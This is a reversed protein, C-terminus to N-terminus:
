KNKLQNIATQLQLDDEEKLTEYYKEDQEVVINPTIGKEDIWNGNPTLWKQITYKVTAGSELQYAKQVTGKGYSNVGVVDANYSELLAGALIESASASYGNILVSIPYKRNSNKFSYEKQVNGKTDLQYIVQNKNLFMSCIEKVTSLYGGSNDRVDIILSDIGDGELTLLQKEFQLSTNNAFIDLKIYGIKKNDVDFIKSTVSDIEVERREVVFDLIKNARKVTIKVTTGAVGKIKSAIKSLNLGSIDEDNVKLIIDDKRLGAEYAPGNEFPRSIVVNFKTIDKEDLYDIAIETAIGVYKGEVEEEFSQTEEKDMYVSYKDELFDLMGKIGADLMKANDIEKYYDKKINQYTDVFEELESPITNNCVKNTEINKQQKAATLGSGLMTGFVLTIFMIIIVELLNFGEKRVVITDNTEMKKDELNIKEDKKNTTNKSQTKKTAPKKKVEKRKKNDDDIDIKKTSEKAM